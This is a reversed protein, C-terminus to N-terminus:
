ARGVINLHASVFTVGPVVSGCLCDCFAVFYFARIHQRVKSPLVGKTLIKAIEGSIFAKSIHINIFGPGGAEANEIMPHAQLHGLLHKACDLSCKFGAYGGAQCARFIQMACM